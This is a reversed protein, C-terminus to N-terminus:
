FIKSHLNEFRLDFQKLNGLIKKISAIRKINIEIYESYRQITKEIYRLM